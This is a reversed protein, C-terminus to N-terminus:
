AKRRRKVAGLGMIGAGLLTLSAPEPVTEIIDISLDMADIGNIFLEIANVNALDVGGDLGTINAAIAALSLFHESPGELLVVGATSFTDADTYLTLTISGGNLDADLVSIHISAIGSLDLGGLGFDNTLVGGGVGDWRLLSTGTGNGNNHQFSGGNANASVVNTSPGTNTLILERDGGLIGAGVSLNAASGVGVIVVAGGGALVTGVANSTVGLPTSFDDILLANAATTVMSAAFVAGTAGLLFRKLM